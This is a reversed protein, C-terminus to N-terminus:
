VTSVDGKKAPELHLVDRQASFVNTDQAVLMPGEINSDPISAETWHLSGRGSSDKQEPEGSEVSFTTM